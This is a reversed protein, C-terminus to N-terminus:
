PGLRFSPSSFLHHFAWRKSCTTPIEFKGKIQLILVSDRSGQRPVRLGRLALGRKWLARSEQVRSEDSRVSRDRWKGRRKDDVHDFERISRESFCDADYVEPTERAGGSIAERLQRGESLICKLSFPRSVHCITSYQFLINRLSSVVLREMYKRLYTM